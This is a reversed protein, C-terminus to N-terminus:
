IFSKLIKDVARQAGLADVKLKGKNVMQQRVRGDKIAELNKKLENQYHSSSTDLGELLVGMKTWFHLNRKQNSAVAVGIVPIGMLIVENLTQGGNAIVLDSELYESILAHPQLFGLAEIGADFGEDLNGLVKIEIHRLVERLTVITKQLVDNNVYGGLGILVKKIEPRVDVQFHSLRWFESRYLLYEAGNIIEVNAQNVNDLLDPAYANAFLVIGKHAFNMKSDAISVVRPYPLSLTTLERKQVQYTDFVLIDNESVFERLLAPNEWDVKETKFKLDLPENGWERVLFVVTYGKQEFAEALSSSRSIHGFGITKSYETLVVVNM